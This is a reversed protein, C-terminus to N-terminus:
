EVMLALPLTLTLYAGEQGPNARYIGANSIHDVRLGLRIDRDFRYALDVSERFAFAGGLDKGGGQRYYGAALEPTLYIAGYSLDVYLGFYGYFGQEANAVFGLQPGVMLAKEGWRYELNLAASRDPNSLDFAGNGWQLVDEGDGHIALSGLELISRRQVEAAGAVPRVIVVLVIAPALALGWRRM